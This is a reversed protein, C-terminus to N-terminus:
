AGRVLTSGDSVVFNLLSMEQVDEAECAEDLKTIVTETQEYAPLNHPPPPHPPM